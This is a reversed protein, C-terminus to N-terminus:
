CTTVNITGGKVLSDSQNTLPKNLEKLRTIADLVQERSKQYQEYETHSCCTNRHKIHEDAAKVVALLASASNIVNIIFEVDGEDPTNQNDGDSDADYFCDKRGYRLLRYLYQENWPLQTAKAQLNCLHQIPDNM